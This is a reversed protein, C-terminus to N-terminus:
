LTCKVFNTIFAKRNLNKKTLLPSPSIMNLGAFSNRPLQMPLNTHLSYLLLSVFALLHKGTMLSMSLLQKKQQLWLLILLLRSIRSCCFVCVQESIIRADQMIKLPSSTASQGQYHAKARKVSLSHLYLECLSVNHLGTHGRAAPPTQTVLSCLSLTQSHTSGWGEALLGISKQKASSDTRAARNGLPRGHLPSSM